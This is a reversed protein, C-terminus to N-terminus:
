SGTVPGCGKAKFEDVTITKFLDQSDDTTGAWYRVQDAKLTALDKTTFDVYTSSWQNVDREDNGGYARFEYRKGPKLGAFATDSSRWGNDPDTLNFTSFAGPNLTDTATWGGAYDQTKADWLTTTDVTGRCVLVYGVPKGTGDVGVAVASGVPVGCGALLLCAGLSGLATLARRRTVHDTDADTQCRSM